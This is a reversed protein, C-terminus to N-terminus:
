RGVPVARAHSRGLWRRLPEVRLGFLARVLLQWSRPRLPQEHLVAFAYRRATAFHGGAVSQRVWECWYDVAPVDQIASPPESCPTVDLGRRARAEAIARELVRRQEAYRQSSTKKVHLRYELLVEPLNALRGHEAMRLFLDVDEAPELEARYGGAALLAERRLMVVPHPLAEGRGSLLAAEIETHDLPVDAERIPRGEPDIRLVRAGVACCEPHSSMFEVQRALRGPRAVDDADMRAILPARAAFVGEKLWATYGAHARRFFRIRPDREAFREVIRDSGDSSADDYILFEFDGFSQALISEIARAVYPAADFVPMLVTVEPM